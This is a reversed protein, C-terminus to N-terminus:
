GLEHSMTKIILEDTNQNETKKVGHLGMGM